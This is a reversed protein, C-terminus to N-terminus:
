INMLYINVPIFAHGNDQVCQNKFYRITKTIISFNKGLYSFNASLM